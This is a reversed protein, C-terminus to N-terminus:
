FGASALVILMASVVSFAVLVARQRGSARTLASVLLTANVVCFIPTVAKVFARSAKERNKSRSCAANVPLTVIRVTSKIGLTSIAAGNLCFVASLVRYVVCLEVVVM